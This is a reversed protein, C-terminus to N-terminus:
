TARRQGQIPPRRYLSEDLRDRPWVLSIDLAGCGTPLIAGRLAVGDPLRLDKTGTMVIPVSLTILEGDEAFDATSHGLIINTAEATAERLMLREEDAAIGLGATAAEFLSDALSRDFSFAALLNLREGVGVVATVCRFRLREAGGPCLIAAGATLGIEDRFYAVAHDIVRDRMRDLSHPLANM